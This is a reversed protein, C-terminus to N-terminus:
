PEWERGAARESGTWARAYNANKAALKADAPTRDYQRKREADKRVWTRYAADWDSRPARYEHDRMMTLAREMAGAEHGEDRLTLLTKASPQWSEPARRSSRKTPTARTAVESPEDIQHNPSPEFTTLPSIIEGGQHLQKGVDAADDEGRPSIMEGHFHLTILDTSRSGDGRRREQRSLLKKAELSKLVTLVTRETLGTEDSLRRHSPFSQNREDAYNALVLLVLKESPSVGRMRLSLSIAHVSM